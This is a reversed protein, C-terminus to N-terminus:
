AGKFIFNLEAITLSHTETAQAVMKSDREIINGALFQNEDSGAEAESIRGLRLLGAVFHGHTVQM